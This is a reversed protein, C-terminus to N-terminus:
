KDAWSGRVETDAKIPVRAEAPADGNVIADAATELVDTLWGAAREAHEEPVVCIVEDHVLAVLELGPVEERREHVEVTIAKLADAALGQIPTNWRKPKEDVEIRRRGTRTRTEREGLDFERAVEERWHGVGPYASFFSVWYKEAEERPFPHGLDNEVKRRMSEVGQGYMNGFVIAKAIKLEGDTAERGLIREAVSRHIDLGEEFAEKLTEDGSLAALVRVEVQSLDSVVLKHGPPAKIAERLNGASPVGQLPPRRCSMRGTAAENQRWDCHLRDGEARDTLADGFTKAANTIANFREM